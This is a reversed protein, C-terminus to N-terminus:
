ACVMLDVVQELVRIEGSDLDKLHVFVPNTITADVGSGVNETRFRNCHRPSSDCLGVKQLSSM